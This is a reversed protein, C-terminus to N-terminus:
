RFDPGPTNTEMRTAFALVVFAIVTGMQSIVLVPKRGFKDSLFGLLPASVFQALAYAALLAGLLYVSIGYQTAFIPLLPILIGFGLFQTVNILLIPLIERIKM